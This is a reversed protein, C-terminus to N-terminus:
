STKDKMVKDCSPLPTTLSLQYETSSEGARRERKHDKVSVKEYRDLIVFTQTIYSDLRHGLSATLDAVTGSSPWVGHYILQWADNVVVDPPHLNPVVIGLHQIIVSENSNRLCGYENIISASVPGLKYNFLTSLEIKRKSGVVLLWAFLAVLDYMIKGNVKVGKAKFKMTM